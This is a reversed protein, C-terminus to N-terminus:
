FRREFIDVKSKDGFDEISNIGIRSLIDKMRESDVSIKIESSEATKNVSERGQDKHVIAKPGGVCGGVCGMGELFNAGINGAQTKNLIDKCDKVGDVKTSKFLHHKNPFIRKVAEDVSTSVGGTRGYLRGERSAYSKTHTEPLKEPDIDLVDFIGKLEEFTLVFDIADSIDQSRSEAKKAICPGIFVM